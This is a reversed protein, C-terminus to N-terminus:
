GLMTIDYTGAHGHLVQIYKSKKVSKERKTFRMFLQCYCILKLKRAKFSSYRSFLALFIHFFQFRRSLKNEFCKISILLLRINKKNYRRKLNFIDNVCM